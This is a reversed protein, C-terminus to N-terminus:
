MPGAGGAQLERQVSGGEELSDVAGSLKTEGASKSLIFEIGSIFINFLM